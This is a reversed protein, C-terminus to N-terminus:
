LHKMLRTRPINKKLFVFSIVTIKHSPTLSIFSPIFSINLQSMKDSKKSWKYTYIFTHPHPLPLITINLQDPYIDTENWCNKHTPHQNPETPQNQSNNLSCSNPWIVIRKSRKTRRTQTERQESTMNMRCCYWMYKSNSSGM